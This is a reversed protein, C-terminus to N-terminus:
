DTCAESGEDLCDRENRPCTSACRRGTSAFVAGCQRARFRLMQAASIEARLQGYQKTLSAADSDAQQQAQVVSSYRSRQDFWANLRRYLTGNRRASVVAIQGGSAIREDYSKMAAEHAALEQQIQNRNDGSQMALNEAADTLVDSDLALQAKAVDLDDTLTVGNPGKVEQTLQDVQAQDDKVIQQLTQIKHSLELAPGSLVPTNLSAQRLATAFAQDVEHDAIREAERAHRQEEASVALAALTQATTWPRQDVIDRSGRTARRFQLNAMSDRTLYIGVLCAILALAPLIVILRRRDRIMEVVPRM